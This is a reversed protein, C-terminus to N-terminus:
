DEVLVLALKPCARVTRRVMPMLQEPVVDRRIIPFGWEDTGIWEPLLEACSGYGQCATPDVVLRQRRGM